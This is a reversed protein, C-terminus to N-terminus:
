GDTRGLTAASNSGDIPKFTTLSFNAKHGTEALDAADLQGLVDIDTLTDEENINVGSVFAVTIGNIDIKAKAGTIVRSM